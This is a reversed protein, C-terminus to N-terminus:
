WEEGRGALLHGSFVTMHSLRYSIKASFTGLLKGLVRERSAKKQVM